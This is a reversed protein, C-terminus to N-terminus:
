RLRSVPCTGCHYRELWKEADDPDKNLEFAKERYKCVDECILDVVEECIGQHLSKEGGHDKYWQFTNCGACANVSCKLFCKRAAFPCSKDYEFM